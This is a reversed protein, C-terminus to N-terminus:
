RDFAAQAASLAATRVMVEQELPSCDIELLLQGAAVHNGDSVDVSKVIGTAAVGLSMAHESQSPSRPVLTQANSPEVILLLSCLTLGLAVVRPSVVHNASDIMPHERAM